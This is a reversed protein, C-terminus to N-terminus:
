FNYVIGMTFSDVRSAYKGEPRSIEKDIYRVMDIFVSWDDNINYDLGAGYSFDSQNTYNNTIGNFAAENDFSIKTQAYGLLGYLKIKKNIPYQPKIYLGYSYDHGLQDGDSIGYTGRTEIGLYKSFDYGVRLVTSYATDTGYLFSNVRDIGVGLGLYIKSSTPLPPVAVVSADSPAINKGGGAHLSTIVFLSVLTRNITKKM